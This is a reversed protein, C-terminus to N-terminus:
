ETSSVARAAVARLRRDQGSPCIVSVEKSQLFILGLFEEESLKVLYHQLFGSFVKMNDAHNGGGLMLLEQDVESIDAARIAKTTAGMLSVLRAEVTPGSAEPVGARRLM